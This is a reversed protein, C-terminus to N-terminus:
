CPHMASMRIFNSNLCLSLYNPNNINITTSTQAIINPVYILVYANLYIGLVHLMGHLLAAVLRVLPVKPSSFYDGYGDHIGACSMVWAYSM